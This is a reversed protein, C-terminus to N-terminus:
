HIHDWNTGSKVDVTLPVKLTAAGEMKTKILEMIQDKLVAPGQLIIEDHVQLIFKVRAWQKAAYRNSNAINYQIAEYIRIMAVKMIDQASGSVAFQIAQTVAKYDSLKKM